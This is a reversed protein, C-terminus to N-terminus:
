DKPSYIYADPLAKKLKEVGAKSVKTENLEVEKLKKLGTLHELGADTIKTKFLSLEVLETLGKV